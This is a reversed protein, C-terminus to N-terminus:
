EKVGALLPGTGALRDFAVSAVFRDAERRALAVRVELWLNFDEIVTSFDGRGTLYAGRAAALAASTQPLIGQRYLNAQEDANLWAALQSSAEARVTAEVDSQQRRAAELAHEAARLMPLQKQRRWIPLEVGFGLSVVPDYGGRSALGANASFNPQLELRALEVRREAATVGAVARRVEASGALALREADSAIPRAKPLLRIDAFPTDGPRDRWRNIEAVLTRREKVLDGVSEAVLLKQVQIKLVGEQDGKGASYRSHAIEELLQVLEEAAALAERERDLAWIRAYLSRVEAAVQRELAALDARWQETEARAVERAAARKGPYPLGQRAQVGLMSMEESGVSPEFGVNQLTAEVMPDPLAGAPTEMERRAEIEARKAALAPARSLAEAVLAELEAIPGDSFLEPASVLAAARSDTQSGAPAPDPQGFAPAQLAVLITLAAFIRDMLDEEVKVPSGAEM